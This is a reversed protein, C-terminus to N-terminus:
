MSQMTVRKEAEELTIARRSFVHVTGAYYTDKEEIAENGADGFYYKYEYMVMSKQQVSNVEILEEVSRLRKKDDDRIAEEMCVESDAGEGVDFGIEPGYTDVDPCMMLLKACWGNEKLARYVRLDM